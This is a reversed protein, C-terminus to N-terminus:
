VAGNFEFHSFTEKDPDFEAGFFASGGDCVLTAHFKWDLTSSQVGNLFEHPFANVYIIRHGGVIFGAYQRLYVRSRDPHEGRKVLADELAKPLLTELSQIQEATPQWAGQVPGPVNRSCQNLLDRATEQSFVAGDDADLGQAAMAPAILLWGAIGCVVALRM